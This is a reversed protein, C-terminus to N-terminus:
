AHVLLICQVREAICVIRITRRSIRGDSYGVAIIASGQADEAESDCCGNVGISYDHIDIMSDSEGVALGM